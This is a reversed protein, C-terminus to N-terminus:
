RARIIKLKLWEQIDERKCTCPSTVFWKIILFYWSIFTTRTRNDQPIQENRKRRWMKNFTSRFWPLNLKRSLPCKKIDLSILTIWAYVHWMVLFLYRPYWKRKLGATEKWHRCSPQDTPLKRLIVIKDFNIYFFAEFTNLDM